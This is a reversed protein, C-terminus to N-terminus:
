RTRGDGGGAQAAPAAPLGLSENLSLAHSSPAFGLVCVALLTSSLLLTHTRSLSMRARSSAFAFSPTTSCTSRAPRAAQTARASRAPWTAQAVQAARAQAQEATTRTALAVRWSEATVQTAAM